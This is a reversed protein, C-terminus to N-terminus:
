FSLEVRLAEQKAKARSVIRKYDEELLVEKLSSTLCSAWWLQEQQRMAERAMSIEDKMTSLKDEKALLSAQVMSQKRTLSMKAKLHFLRLKPDAHELMLTQNKDEAKLELKAKALATKEVVLKERKALLYQLRFFTEQYPPYTKHNEENM